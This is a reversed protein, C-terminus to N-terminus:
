FMVGCDYEMLNNTELDLVRHPTARSLTFIWETFGGWKSFSVVRVTVAEEGIEVEPAPDIKLAQRQQTKNFPIGFGTESMEQVIAELRAQSAIIEEDHYGAHWYLYFQDGMLSLLIWQFYGEETGDSWIHDLYSFESPNAETYESYDTFPPDSLPRGYLYPKGGIGDYRYVFDLTYGSALSLHDLPLLLQNPDFVAGTQPLEPDTLFNPIPQSRTIAKLSDVEAQWGETASRQKDQTFDFLSFPLRCSLSLSALILLVLVISANAKRM